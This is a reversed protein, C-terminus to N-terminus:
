RRANKARKTAYLANDAKHVVEDAPGTAVGVSAEVSVTAAEGLGVPAAIATELREVLEQVCQRDDPDNADGSAATVPAEAFVVAFEDGGLRVVLDDERVAQGIRAAVERLVTDGADHGYTDNVAKFDDLDLFAVTVPGTAAELRRRLASRNGVRTLPDTVAERRLAHHRRQEGIVLSSLRQAQRLAHDTGINLEVGITVWVAICGSVEDTSGDFVPVMWASLFGADRAQQALDDPFGVFDLPAVVKGDALCDEWWRPDTGFAELPSGPPIGLTTEGDVRAVVLATGIYAPVLSACAGLVDPLPADAVLLDVVNGVGDLSGGVPRVILLLGDVLPDHLMNHVIAERTIWGSEPTGVRYRLPETVPVGPTVANAAELQEFAAALQGIDDPHVREFSGRGKRSEPDIGTVWTASRSLWKTRLDRGILVTFTAPSQDLARALQRAIEPAVEPADVATGPVVPPVETAEPADAPDSAEPAREPADPAVEPANSADPADRDDPASPDRTV